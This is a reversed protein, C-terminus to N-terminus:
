IWWLIHQICWWDVVRQDQGQRICRRCPLVELSVARFSSSCQKLGKRRRVEDISLFFFVFDFRKEDNFMILVHRDHEDNRDISTDIPPKKQIAQNVNAYSSFMRRHEHLAWINSKWQDVRTRTSKGDFRRTFLWRDTCLKSFTHAISACKVTGLRVRITSFSLYSIRHAPRSTRLSTSGQMTRSQHTFQINTVM